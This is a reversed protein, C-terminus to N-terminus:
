APVIAGRACAKACLDCGTCMAREIRVWALDVVKGSAREQRERRTVTIAPCGVDLCRACGNCKPEAVTLPRRREFEETLVCPRTTIIVSPEPAKMEERLVKFFTPLEYPDTVRVREPRVGLAEVLKAFDLRPAPSGDLRRGNGPNNQGGTM